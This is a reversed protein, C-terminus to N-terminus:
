FYEGLWYTYINYNCIWLQAVENILIICRICVNNQTILNSPVRKGLQDLQHYDPCRSTYRVDLILFVSFIQKKKPPLFFLYIIFLQYSQVLHRILPNHTVILKSSKKWYRWTLDKHRLWPCGCFTIRTDLVFVLVWVPDSLIRSEKWFLTIKTNNIKSKSPKKLVWHNWIPNTNKRGLTKGVQVSLM